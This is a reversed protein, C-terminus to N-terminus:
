KRDKARQFRSRRASPTEAESSRSSVPPTEIPERIPAPKPSKTPRVKSARPRREPLALEPLKWGTRTVLADALVLLLIAIGLPLTLSTEGVFPPRLWAKSLDLLERGKTAASAERLEALLQPDFNWEVNSGVSLPGFTLAHSGVRM